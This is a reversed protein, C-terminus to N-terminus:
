ARPGTVRMVEAPDTVGQLAKDAGDRALGAPLARTVMDATLRSASIARGLEDDVVLVEHIATRGYYGTRHCRDCGAGHWLRVPPDAIGLARLYEAEAPTVDYEAKCQDCVKRVLRQAVVGVLTESVMFPELGLTLLRAVAGYADGAHFGALVLHGTRALDLVASGTPADGLEGVMVVDPDSRQFARLVAPYDLGASPNLPTQTAGDVHMEVPSEATFVSVSPANVEDLCAYMTTTRGSGAPGAFLILGNPRRLLDRVKALHSPSFEIAELGFERSASSLIRLTVRQGTISPLVCVRLDYERGDHSTNLRSFQAVRAEFPDSDGMVHLRAVVAPYVARSITRVDHLVGDIRFRVRIDERMPQFHIDSAASDIAAGLIDEILHVIDPRRAAEMIDLTKRAADAKWRCNPCSALHQEVGAAESEGLEGKVYAVLREEVDLCQM